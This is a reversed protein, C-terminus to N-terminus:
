QQAGEDAATSTIAGCHQHVGGDRERKVVVRHLYHGKLSLEQLGDSRTVIAFSKQGVAGHDVSGPSRPSASSTREVETPETGLACGGLVVWALAASLRCARAISSTNMM